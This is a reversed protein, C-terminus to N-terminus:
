EGKQATESIQKTEDSGIWSTLKHGVRGLLSGSWRARRRADPYLTAIKEYNPDTEFVQAFCHDAQQWERNKYHTLGNEYLESIRESTRVEALSM